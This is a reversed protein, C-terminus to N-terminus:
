SMQKKPAFYNEEKYRCYNSIVFLKWIKKVDVMKLSYPNIEQNRTFKHLYVPQDSM